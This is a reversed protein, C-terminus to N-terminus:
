VIQNNLMKLLTDKRAPKSLFDNCGAELAKQREEASTYATLAVIKLHPNYARMKLTIDYGSSDPLQIDMLVLDIHRNFCFDLAQKGNFAQLTQLGHGSLLQNLYEANDKEDEVILITRNLLKKYDPVAPDSILPKMLHSIVLPLHFTFSSGKGTESELQISGKM